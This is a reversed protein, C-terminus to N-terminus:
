PRPRFPYPYPYPFVEEEAGLVQEAASATDPGAALATDPGAALATDPGEEASAQNQTPLVTIM